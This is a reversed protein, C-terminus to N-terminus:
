LRGSRLVGWLLWVGLVVSFAFGIVSIINIGLLQPGGKSFIGILSSGILGGAVIMAVVLRNFVADIRNLADDLGKHVFGVEIQGDRVQELTDHVQYPLDIVMQGLRASEKLARGAVRRPRLRDLLLGRAYPRAVEFVNFDPYLDIGVSALTAIAKDLLLFRTPLQLSNSYILQFAERIVQLPDIEALSAGYYRYYFERLQARLEEERERPYRVGLDALRKPLMDVNESAADIFMRTLKSMDDDTLKGVAGFDVLGIVDPSGLVLINAPHPDGHFFGHRFIMTMWAEAMVHALDRRDELPWAEPVIDAVQIGDLWELTLVRSRTYTWYVRPIRVHPDGAFNRHFTDANRAELRYDLEQRISRAFEDVLQHADIFDLARVREKAIRAAQYLLALDAEIQRPAGPRQVKVAVRGGNPLTALHVQGISAAAIPREDFEPFLKDVSLGLEEEVVREVDEFPFPRVDDQLGRLEVIIDPPLVDPRTSLLQGFKVFTPGLEDLMERLHKGRESPQGDLEARPGRRPFLDALRHTEFWYGFGHRVAVQAIESLRGLNRTAPQAM